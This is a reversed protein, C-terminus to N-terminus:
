TKKSIHYQLFAARRLKTMLFGYLIPNTCTSSIQINTRANKTKEEKKNLELIITKKSIHYSAAFTHVKKFNDNLFGYLIPNTCTSSIGILHFLLYFTMMDDTDEFVDM